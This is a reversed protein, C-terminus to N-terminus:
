CSTDHDHLLFGLASLAKIIHAWGYQEVATAALNALYHPMALSQEM